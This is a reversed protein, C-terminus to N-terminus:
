EHDADYQEARQKLLESRHRRWARKIQDVSALRCEPPFERILVPVRNMARTGRPRRGQSRRSRLPDSWRTPLDLLVADEAHKRAWQKPTMDLANALREIIQKVGVFRPRPTHKYEALEAVMTALYLDRIKRKRIQLVHQRDISLCLQKRANAVARAFGAAVAKEDRGQADSYGLAGPLPKSLDVGPFVSLFISTYAQDIEQRVWGPYDWKRGACIAVAEILAFRDGKGEDWRLECEALEIPESFKVPETDEPSLRPSRRRSRSM